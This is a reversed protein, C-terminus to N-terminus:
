KVGYVLVTGGNLDGGGSETQIRLSSIAGTQNYMVRGNRYRFSTNTTPDTTINYYIGLKWTTTNAYDFLHLVTLGQSTTNDTGEGIGWKTDNFATASVSTFDNAARHRNATSDDNARVDLGYADNTPKFNRFVIFLDNYTAPISSILVSAGTLTTGGTNILTMGGSAPAAWKLGTTEASDATLVHGNTGVALRAPTDAATATLLDAKADFITPQIATDGAGLRGISM